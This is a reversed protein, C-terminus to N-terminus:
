VELELGYLRDVRTNGAQYIDDTVPEGPDDSDVYKDPQHVVRYRVPGDVTRLVIADAHTFTHVTSWQKAGAPGGPRHVLRPNVLEIWGEDIGREVWSTPVRCSAPPEGEIQVGALPWPEPLGSAPNILTKEGTGPDVGPVRTGVTKDARKRVALV